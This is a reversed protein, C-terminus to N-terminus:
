TFSDSLSVNFPGARGRKLKEAENLYTDGIEILARKGVPNATARARAYYDQAVKLLHDIPM